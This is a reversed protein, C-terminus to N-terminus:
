ARKATTSTSPSAKSAELAGKVAELASKAAAKDVWSWGDSPKQIKAARLYRRVVAPSKIGIEKGLDRATFAKATSAKSAPAKPTSSTKNGMLAM